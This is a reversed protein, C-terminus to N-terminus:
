KKNLIQPKNCMNKEHRELEEQLRELEEKATRLQEILTSEREVHKRRLANENENQDALLVDKDIAFKKQISQLESTLQQERQTLFSIRETLQLETASFSLNLAHIQEMQKNKNM